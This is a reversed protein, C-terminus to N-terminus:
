QTQEFTPIVGLVHYAYAEAASITRSANTASIVICGPSRLLVADVDQQEISIIMTRPGASACSVEGAGSGYPAGRVNLNMIGYRQGLVRALSVGAIGIEGPAGDPVAIYVTHNQVNQMAIISRLAEPSVHIDEVDAPHNYFTMVYPQGRVSLSLAWCVIDTGQCTTKEIPFGHYSYDEEHQLLVLALVALLIVVVGALLWGAPPM